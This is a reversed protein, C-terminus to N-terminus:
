RGQMHSNAMQILEGLYIMGPLSTALKGFLASAMSATTTNLFLDPSTKPEDTPLDQKDGNKVRVLQEVPLEHTQANTSQKRTNRGPKSRHAM